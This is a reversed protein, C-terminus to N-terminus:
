LFDDKKLPVLWFTLPISTMTSTNNFSHRTFTLYKKDPTNKIYFFMRKWHCLDFHWHFSQWAPATSIIDASLWMSKIQCKSYLFYDKRGHCSDFHRHFLHQPALTTSLCDASLWISKDLTINKVFFFMREETASTM